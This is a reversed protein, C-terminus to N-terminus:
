CTGIVILSGTGTVANTFTITTDSWTTEDLVGASDDYALVYLITKIPTYSSVDLTDNQAAKTYSVQYMNAQATPDIPKALTYTVLQTAM